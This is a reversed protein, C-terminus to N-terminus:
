LMFLRSSSVEEGGLDYGGGTGGTRDRGLFDLVWVEVAGWLVGRGKM